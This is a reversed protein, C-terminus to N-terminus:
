IKALDARDLQVPVSQNMMTLLVRVRGMPDQRDVMALQDAFPGRIVRVTAGPALDPGVLDLVGDRDTMDRMAAVLGQPAPAPRDGTKVLRIVGVTGDISRWRQVHVDVSVFLYGPFYATQTTRLSRGHRLTRWSLPLFVEFAQRELHQRALKEKGAQTQALYWLPGSALPTTSPGIPERLV